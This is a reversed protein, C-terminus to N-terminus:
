QRPVWVIHAVQPSSPPVAGLVCLATSAPTVTLLPPDVSVEMHQCTSEFGLMSLLGLGVDNRQGRSELGELLASIAGTAEPLVYDSDLPVLVLSRRSQGLPVDGSTCSPPPLAVPCLYFRRSRQRATLQRRVEPPAQKCSAVMCACPHPQWSAITCVATLVHWCPLSNLRGALWGGARLMGESDAGQLIALDDSSMGSITKRM